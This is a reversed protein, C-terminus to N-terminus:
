RTRSRENKLHMGCFCFKRGLGDAQPHGEQGRRVSRRQDEDPERPQLESRLAVDVEPEPLAPDQPTYNNNPSQPKPFSPFRARLASCYRRGGRSPCPRIHSLVALFLVCETFLLRPSCRVCLSLAFAVYVETKGLVQPRETPGSALLTVVCYPDSTGKQENTTTTKTRFVYLSYLSIPLFFFRLLSRQDATSLSIPRATFKIRGGNSLPLPLLLLRRRSM